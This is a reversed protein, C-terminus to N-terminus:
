CVIVYTVCLRKNCAHAYESTTPYTHEYERDKCVPCTNSRLGGISNMQKDAHDSPRVVISANTRDHDSPRMERNAMPLVGAGM